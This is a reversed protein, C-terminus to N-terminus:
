AVAPALGYERIGKPFRGLYDQSHHQEGTGAALLAAFVNWTPQPETSAFGVARISDPRRLVDRETGIRIYRLHM